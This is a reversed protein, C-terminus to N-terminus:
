GRSEYPTVTGVLVAVLPGLVSDFENALSRMPAGPMPRAIAEDTAGSVTTAPTTVVAIATV